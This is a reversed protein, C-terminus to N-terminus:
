LRWQDVEGAHNHQALLSAPRRSRRLLGLFATSALIGLASPEPVSPIPDDRRPRDPWDYDSENGSFGGNNLWYDRLEGFYGLPGPAFSLNLSHTYDSPPAITTPYALEGVPGAGGILNLSLRGAPLSHRSELGRGGIGPSHPLYIGSASGPEWIPWEDSLLLGSGGQADPLHRPPQPSAQERASPLAEARAPQTNVLMGVLFLSMAVLLSAAILAIRRVTRRHRKVM